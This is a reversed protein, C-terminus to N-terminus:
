NNQRQKQKEIQGKLKDLKEDLRAYVKKEGAFGILQELCMFTDALEEVFNDEM